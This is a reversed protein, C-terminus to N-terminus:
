YKYDCNSKSIHIGAVTVGNVDVYDYYYGVGMNLFALIKENNCKDKILFDTMKRKFFVNNENNTFYNVLTYRYHVIKGNAKVSDLRMDNDVMTPLKANIENSGKLLIDEIEKDSKFIFQFGLNKNYIEETFKGLTKGIGRAFVLVLLLAIISAVKGLSKM